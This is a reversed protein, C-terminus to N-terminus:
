KELGMAKRFDEFFDCAKFYGEGDVYDEANDGLWELAKKITAKEGSEEGTKYAEVMKEYCTHWSIDPYHPANDSCWKEADTPESKSRLMEIEMEDLAEEVDNLAEEYGDPYEAEVQRLNDNDRLAKIKEHIKEFM